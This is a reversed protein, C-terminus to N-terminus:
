IYKRGREKGASDFKVTIGERGREDTSLVFGNPAFVKQRADEQTQTKASPRRVKRSQQFSEAVGGGDEELVVRGDDAPHLLLPLQGDYAETRLVFKLQEVDVIGGTADDEVDDFLGPM